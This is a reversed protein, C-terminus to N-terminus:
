PVIHLVGRPLVLLPSCVSYTALVRWTEPPIPGIHGGGLANLRTMYTYVILCISTPTYRSGLRDEDVEFDAYPKGGIGM